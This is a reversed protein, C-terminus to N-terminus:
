KNLKRCKSQRLIYHIKYSETLQIYTVSHPHSYCQRLGLMPYTNLATHCEIPVEAYGDQPILFTEHTKKEKKGERGGAPRGKGGVFDASTM